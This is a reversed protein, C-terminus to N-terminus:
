NEVKSSITRLPATRELTAVVSGLLREAVIRNGPATLHLGDFCLKRDTLDLAQGLDVRRLKPRDGFSARLTEWMLYQQEVHLDSVYPPTVVLVRKGRSLALGVAKQMSRCYHDFRKGCLKDKPRPHNALDAKVKAIIREPPQSLTGLQGKLAKRVAKGKSPEKETEPTFAVKGDRYGAGVSGYRIQYYKEILILQFIPLYGTLRFVPSRHRFQAFNPAGLDNYGGYLVVIDYDLYSYDRLTQLYSFAGQNNYALNVVKVPRRDGEDRLANIKEELIAPISEEQTEGYGFAQSGGLIVIRKEGSRKGGAIPGRYGWINYGAVQGYKKHFYLDLGLLLLIPIVTLIVAFTIGFLIYKRRTM